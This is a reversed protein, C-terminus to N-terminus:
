DRKRVDNRARVAFSPFYSLQICARLLARCSAVFDSHFRFFRCSSEFRNTELSLKRCCSFVHPTEQWPHPTFVESQFLQMRQYFNFDTTVIDCHSFVVGSMPCLFSHTTVDLSYLMREVLDRIQMACILDNRLWESIHRAHQTSSAPCQLYDIAGLCAKRCWIHDM